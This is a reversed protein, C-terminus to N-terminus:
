QLSFGKKLFILFFLRDAVDAIIPKAAKGTVKWRLKNEKAKGDLSNLEFDAMGWDWEIM